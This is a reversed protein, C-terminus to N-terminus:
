ARWRTPMTGCSQDVFAPEGIPVNFVTVGRLRVGEMNVHIGEEMHSLEEPILGWMQGNEWARTDMNFM